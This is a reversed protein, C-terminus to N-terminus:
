KEPPVTDGWMIALHREGKYPDRGHAMRMNDFVVVDGAEWPTRILYRKHIELVGVYEEDTIDRGNGIRVHTPCDLYPLGDFIRGPWQWFNRADFGLLQNCFFREGTVPDHRYAGIHWTQRLTGDKQWEVTEGNQELREKIQQKTMNPYNSQWTPIDSTNMWLNSKETNDKDPLNKTYLLGYKHLEIMLNRFKDMLEIWILRMDCFPTCGGEDAPLYQAIVVRGVMSPRYSLDNHPPMDWFKTSVNVFEYVNEVRDKRTKSYIGGHKIYDYVDHEFFTNQLEKLKKSDTLGGGRFFGYGQTRLRENVIDKTIEKHSSVHDIKIVFRPDPIAAYTSYSRFPNSRLIFLAAMVV